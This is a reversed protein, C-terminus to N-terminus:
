KFRHPKSRTRPGEVIGSVPHNTQTRSLNSVDCLSTKRVSVKKDSLKRRLAKKSKRSLVPTFENDINDVGIEGSECGERQSETDVGVDPVGLPAGGNSEVDEGRVNSSQGKKDEIEKEEAIIQLKKSFMKSRANELDKFINITELHFSSPDIGLELAKNAIYDDSLSAFSNLNTVIGETNRNSLNASDRQYM